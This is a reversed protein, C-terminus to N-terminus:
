PMRARAEGLTYGQRTALELALLRVRDARSLTEDDAVGIWDLIRDIQGNEEALVKRLGHLVAIASRDVDAELLKMLSDRQAVVREYEARTPAGDIGAVLSM